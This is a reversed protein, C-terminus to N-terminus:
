PDVDAAQAPSKWDRLTTIRGWRKAKKFYRDDATVLMAEEHELAVAHYLTDFLHDGTEIALSTARSIINPDDSCPLELAALLEVDRIATSPTLRAIVAAVEALWHVPQLIEIKGKVISEMLATAKDTDPERLPDEILWKLIVSADLVLIM